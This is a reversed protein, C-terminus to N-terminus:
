PEGAPPFRHLECRLIHVNRCHWSLGKTKICTVQLLAITSAWFCWFCTIGQSSPVSPTFDPSHRPGASPKGPVSLPPNHLRKSAYRQRRASQLFWLLPLFDWIFSSSSISRKSIAQLAFNTPDWFVNQTATIVVHM